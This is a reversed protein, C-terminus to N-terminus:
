TTINQDLSIICGKVNIYLTPSFVSCKKSQMHIIGTTLSMCCHDFRRMRLSFDGFYACNKFTIKNFYSPRNVIPRRKIYVIKNMLM